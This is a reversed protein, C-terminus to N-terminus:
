YRHFDSSLTPEPVPTIPGGLPHPPVSGPDEALPLLARLQQAMEGVEGGRPM